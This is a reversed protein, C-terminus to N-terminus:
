RPKSARRTTVLSRSQVGCCCSFPDAPLPAGENTVTVPLTGTVANVRSKTDARLEEQVFIKVDKDVTVYVPCAAPQLTCIADMVDMAMNTM